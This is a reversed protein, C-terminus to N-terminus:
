KNLKPLGVVARARHISIPELRRYYDPDRRLNRAVRNYSAEFTKAAGADDVNAALYDFVEDWSVGDARAELVAQTRALDKFMDLSRRAATAQRGRAKPWRGSLGEGLLILVEGILWAPIECVNLNSDLDPNLSADEYSFGRRVPQLCIHLASYLALLDGKRIADRRREMAEQQKPFYKDGRSEFIPESLLKRFKELTLTDPGPKRAKPKSPGSSLRPRRHEPKLGVRAEM